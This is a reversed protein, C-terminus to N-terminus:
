CSYSCENEFCNSQCRFIVMFVFCYLGSEDQKAGICSASGSIDVLQMLQLEEVASLHFKFPLYLWVYGGWSADRLAGDAFLIHVSRLAPRFESVFNNVILRFIFEELNEDNM